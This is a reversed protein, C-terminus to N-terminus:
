YSGATSLETFCLPAATVLKDDTDRYQRAASSRLSVLDYVRAHMRYATHVAVAREALGGFEDVQCKPNSRLQTKM